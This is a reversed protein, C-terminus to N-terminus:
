HSCAAVGSDIARSGIPVSTSADPRHRQLVPIGALAAVDAKFYKRKGKAAPCFTRIRKAQVEASLERRDLGTWELVTARPLLWPLREWQELTLRETRQLSKSAM